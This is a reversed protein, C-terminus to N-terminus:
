VIRCRCGITGSWPSWWGPRNGYYRCGEHCRQYRCKRSPQPDYRNLSVATPADDVPTVTVTITQPGATLPPTEDDEVQVTFNEAVPENGNHVYIVAGAVLQAQTFSDVMAGGIQLTGSTPATSVRWTLQEAGDSADEDTASLDNTTLTYSGGEAVDFARDATVSNTPADNADTLMIELTATTGSNLTSSM